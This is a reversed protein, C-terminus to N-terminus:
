KTLLESAIRIQPKPQQKNRDRGKQKRKIFAEALPKNEKEQWDLVAKLDAIAYDVNNVAKRVREIQIMNYYGEFERAIQARSCEHPKNNRVNYPRGDKFYVRTGCSQNCLVFDSM